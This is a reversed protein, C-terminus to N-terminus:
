VPRAQDSAEGNNVIFHNNQLARSFGMGEFM